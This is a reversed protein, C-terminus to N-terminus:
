LDYLNKICKSFIQINKSIIGLLIVATSQNRRLKLVDEDADEGEEDLDDDLDDEHASATESNHGNNINQQFPPDGYKPLYAGWMEVLHKRGKPGLNKLEAVLLEQAALRIQLCRDQWRIALQEVLPKKFAKAGRHRLKGSMLLCHLTNLLSWGKKIQEQQHGFNSGDHIEMMGHTAQRVLKRKREQEPIFSANSVSVLTNTIAIVSLLHNTTTSHSLEWHGLATFFDLNNDEKKLSWTPLMLSMVGGKSMIGYSIPVRPKLLGLKSLAVRDLDKDLGWAHLLSLLIQGIELTLNIELHLSAPRSFPDQDDKGNAALDDYAGARKEIEKKTKISKGYFCLM